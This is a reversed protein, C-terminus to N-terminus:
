GGGYVLRPLWLSLDPWVLVILLALVQLGIFPWQAAFIDQLTVGEPAAGKLYFCAPGFPPTLYAIQMSLNFVIGFWLPDYGLTSLVPLFIPMTLFLIGIWDIFFGLLVFVGVMVALIITPNESIGSLMESAFDIGGMLNYVGILANTGFVLWFVMGCTRMAQIFVERIMDLTLTGRVWAALGSGFAGLAASETISALGAYISVLVGGAVAVPLAVGKFLALKERLPMAQEEVSLAPGMAPNLGCRILVYIVYFSALMLGPLLTALFLQSINVEATLGYFILIISPPIMTGLSGGATVIGIALKKDYGLRLMQPLAILGLLVIEGGIIGTTAGLIVAVFITVVGIGGRLSGAWVHLARYLDRAVGSKEMFSAMIVFMPVAILAFSDIFDVTRSGVIFLSNLGFQTVALVVAISGSVFALPVGLMLLTAMSALILLTLTGIDM